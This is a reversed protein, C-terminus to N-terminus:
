NKRYIYRAAISMTQQKDDFENFPIVEKFCIRSILVKKWYRTDPNLRSYALRPYQVTEYKIGFRKLRYFIVLAAYGSIIYQTQAFTHWRVEGLVSATPILM